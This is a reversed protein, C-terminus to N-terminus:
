PDLNDINSHCIFPDSDYSHSLVRQFVSYFHGRPHRLRFSPCMSSCKFILPLPELQTFSHLMSLQLLFLRRLDAFRVIPLRPWEVSTITLPAIAIQHMPAPDGKSDSVGLPTKRRLTPVTDSVIDPSQALRPPPFTPARHDDIVLCQAVPNSLAFSYRRRRWRGRCRM